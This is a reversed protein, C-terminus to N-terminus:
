ELLISKHWHIANRTGYGQARYRDEVFIAREQPLNNVTLTIINVGEPRETFHRLDDVVVRQSGMPLNEGLGSLASFSDFPRQLSLERTIVIGIHTPYRGLEDPVFEFFHFPAIPRLSGLIGASNSIGDIVSDDGDVSRIDGGLPGTGVPLYSEAAITNPLDFSGDEFDELFFEDLDVFPSDDASRYDPIDHFVLASFSLGTLLLFVCLVAILRIM